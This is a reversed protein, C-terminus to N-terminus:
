LGLLGKTINIDGTQGNVSTVPFNILGVGGNAIDNKLNNLIERLSKPELPEIYDFVQDISTTPFIREIQSQSANSEDNFVFIDRALDSNMRSNINMNKISGKIYNNLKKDIKSIVM